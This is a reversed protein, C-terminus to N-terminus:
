KFSLHNFTQKIEDFSSCTYDGIAKGNLFINGRYECDNPYFTFDIEDADEVSDGYWMDVTMM